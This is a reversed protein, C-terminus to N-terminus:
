YSKHVEFEVHPMAMPLQRMQMKEREFELCQQNL